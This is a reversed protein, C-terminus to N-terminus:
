EEVTVVTETEIAVIGLAILQVTPDTGIRDFADLAALAADQPMTETENTAKAGNPHRHTWRVRWGQITFVTKQKAM